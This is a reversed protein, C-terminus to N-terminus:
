KTVSSGTRERVHRLCLIFQSPTQLVGPINPLRGFLLQFPMYSTASHPTKNHVFTAFKLWQDWNSLDADVYSRLYEILGKHSRENWVNTQLRFSTSHIRKIGLLKCVSKFTESLFQSGCDSLIIQPIGFILIVYDAFAKAVQEATQDELPVAIVFKSLDDQVTLIYRYRSSSLTFPGVIDVSFKEFVTSPTDTLVLPM